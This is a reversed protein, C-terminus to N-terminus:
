PELNQAALGKGDTGDRVDTTCEKAGALRRDGLNNAAFMGRVLEDVEVVRARWLINGAGTPFATAVAARIGGVDLEQVGFSSGNGLSGPHGEFGLLGDM